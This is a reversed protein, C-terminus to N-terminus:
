LVICLQKMVCQMATEYCNCLQKVAGDMATEYWILASELLQQFCHVSVAFGAGM